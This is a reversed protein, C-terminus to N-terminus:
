SVQLIKNIVLSIAMACIFYWGLWSLGDHIHIFGADLYVPFFIVNNTAINRYSIRYVVKNEEPKEDIEKKVTMISGDIPQESDTSIVPGKNGEKDLYTLVVTNSRMEDPDGSKLEFEAIVEAVSDSHARKVNWIVTNNQAIYNGDHPNVNQFTVNAPLNDIITVNLAPNLDGYAGGLYNFVLLFPVITILMPRFGHKLNEMTLKMMEEQSKKLKKTDGSKTASKMDEQHQKIRVKMDKMKEQDLVVRRVLASMIALGMSILAIMYGAETIEIM